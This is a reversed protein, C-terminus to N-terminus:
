VRWDKEDDLALGRDLALYQASEDVEGRMSAGNVLGSVNM